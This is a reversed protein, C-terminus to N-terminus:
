ASSYADAEEMKASTSSKTCRLLRARSDNVFHVARFTQDRLVFFLHRADDLEDVFRAGRMRFKVILVVRNEEAKAVGIIVFAGRECFELAQDFDRAFLGEGGAIM